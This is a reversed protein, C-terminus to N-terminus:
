KWAVRWRVEHPELHTVPILSKSKAAAIRHHGDLVTRDGLSLEVPEQVGREQVSRFLNTHKSEKRKRSYLQKASQEGEEYEGHYVDYKSKIQKPTMFMALQEHSVNDEASM